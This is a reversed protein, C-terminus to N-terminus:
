TRRGSSLGAGEPYAKGEAFWFGEGSDGRRSLVRTGIGRGRIQPMVFIEYIVLLNLDPRPDVSLFGVESDQDYVIYHKTYCGRSSALARDRLSYNVVTRSDAVEVIQFEDSPM